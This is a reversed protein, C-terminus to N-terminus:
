VTDSCALADIGCFSSGSGSENDVVNHQMNTFSHFECKALLSADGHCQPYTTVLWTGIISMCDKERHHFFHDAGKLVAGTTTEKPLSTVLERFAEQSTFNDRSGLILLRPLTTRKRAQSQHYNGNFCLLWHQVSVPPAISICGICKPITASASACILSGYSYGCLLIYSPPKSLSPEDDEDQQQQQQQKLHKGSLLYDAAQEVQSVQNNGRGIQSGAFNFRLTTIQLKHFYLVAAVVVNNHMNGGLPGWPHTVIVALRSNCDAINAHIINSPSIIHSEEVQSLMTQQFSIRAQEQNALETSPTALCPHPLPLLILSAKAHFTPLAGDNHHM